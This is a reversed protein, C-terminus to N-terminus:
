PKLSQKLEDPTPLEKDTFIEDPFIPLLKLMEAEFSNIFRSTRTSQLRETPNAARLGKLHEVNKARLEVILPVARSILTYIEIIIQTSETNTKEAQARGINKLEHAEDVQYGSLIQYQKEFAQQTGSLRTQLSMVDSEIKSTPTGELIATAQEAKKDALLSTLSKIEAKLALAKQNADEIQKKIEQMKENM